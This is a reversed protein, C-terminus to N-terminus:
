DVAARNLSMANFEKGVIIPAKITSLKNSIPDKIPLLEPELNSELLRGGENSAIVDTVINAEEGDNSGEVWNKTVAAPQVERVLGQKSLDFVLAQNPVMEFPKSNVYPQRREYFGPVYIVNEKGTMYLTAKLSTNFQQSDLSLTGLM